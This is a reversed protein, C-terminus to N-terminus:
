RWVQVLYMVSALAAVCIGVAALLVLIGHVQGWSWTGGSTSTGEADRPSPVVVALVVLVLVLPLAFLGWPQRFHHISESLNFLAVIWALFLLSGQPTALPLPQVALYITHAVLGAAGFAIGVLRLIPRPAVLHWVELALAVGYSAAFCFVSIASM